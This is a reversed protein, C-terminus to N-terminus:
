WHWRNSSSHKIEMFISGSSAKNVIFYLYFIYYKFIFEKNVVLPGRPVIHVIAYFLVLTTSQCLSVRLVFVHTEAYKIVKRSITTSSVIELIKRNKMEHLKPFQFRKLLHLHNTYHVSVKKPLNGTKILNELSLWPKSLEIIQSNTGNILCWM